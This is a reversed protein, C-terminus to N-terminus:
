KSPKNRPQPFGPLKDGLALFYLTAKARIPEGFEKETEVLSMWTKSVGMKRAFTTLNMDHEIRKLRVQKGTLIAIM